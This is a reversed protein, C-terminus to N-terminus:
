LHGPRPARRGDLVCPALLHRRGRRLPLWRDLAPDPLHAPDTAPHRQTGGARHRHAGPLAHQAPELRAFYRLAGELLLGQREGTPLDAFDTFTYSANETQVLAVHPEAMAPDDDILLQYSSAGDVHDWVFTPM